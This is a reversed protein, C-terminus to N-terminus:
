PQDAAHPPPFRMDSIVLYTPECDWSCEPFLLLSPESRLWSPCWSYPKCPVTGHPKQWLLCRGESVFAKAFSKWRYQSNLCCSDLCFGPRLLFCLCTAIFPKSLLKSLDRCLRVVFCSGARGHAWCNPLWELAAWNCVAWLCRWCHRRVCLVCQANWSLLFVVSPLSQQFAAICVLAFVDPRDRFRQLLKM